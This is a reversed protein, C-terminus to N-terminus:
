SVLCHIVKKSWGTFESNEELLNAFRRVNLQHNKFIGMTSKLVEAAECSLNRSHHAAALYGFGGTNNRNTYCVRLIWLESKM